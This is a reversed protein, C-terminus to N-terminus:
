HVEPYGDEHEIAQINVVTEDLMLSLEVMYREISENGNIYATEIFLVKSKVVELQNMTNTFIELLRGNEEKVQALENQPLILTSM